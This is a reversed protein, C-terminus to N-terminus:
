RSKAKEVAILNRAYILRNIAAEVAAVTEKNYQHRRVAKTQTKGSQHRYAETGVAMRKNLRKAVYILLDLKKITQYHSIGQLRFPTVIKELRMMPRSM